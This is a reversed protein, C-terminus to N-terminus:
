NIEKVLKVTPSEESIINEEDDNDNNNEVKKVKESKEIKELKENIEEIEKDSISSLTQKIQPSILITKEQIKTIAANSLRVKISLVSGKYVSPIYIVPIINMRYKNLNKWDVEKFKRERDVYFFKTGVNNEEYGDIMKIFAYKTSNNNNKESLLSIPDKIWLSEKPRDPCFKKQNEKVLDVIRKYLCSWVEIFKRHNEDLESFILTINRSVKNEFMHERIGTTEVEPLQLMIKNMKGDPFKYKLQLLSYKQRSNRIEKDEVGVSVINEPKFELYHIIDSM